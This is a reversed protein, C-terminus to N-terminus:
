SDQTNGKANRKELNSEYIAEIVEAGAGETDPKSVNHSYAGSHCDCVRCLPLSRDKGLLRKRYETIVPHTWLELLSNDAINGYAVDGHYDNCCILAEGRWNVNLMRFPKACMRSVPEHTPDLFEPINGARNILGFVGAGFADVESKDLMQVAKQRWGLVSYVSRERSIVSPLAKIWPTRREYLGKSYCNILLQNLGSAYMRMIDDPGKCYDGNTAVMICSKPALHRATAICELLYAKERMPENYIYLEIRGTYGMLGLESLAKCFDYWRIHEEPRKNYRVPCFKCRRNCRAAIELAVTNFLRM